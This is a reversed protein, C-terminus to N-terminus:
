DNDDGVLNNAKRFLLMECGEDKGYKARYEELILYIHNEWKKEYFYSRIIAYVVMCSLLELGIILLDFITYTIITM